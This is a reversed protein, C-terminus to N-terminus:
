WKKIPCHETAMHLKVSACGCKGCRTVGFYPFNTFHPCRPHTEDGSCTLYRERFVEYPVIKFGSKSWRLLSLGFEKAMGMLSLKAESPKDPIEVCASPTSRCYQQDYWFDWDWPIVLGQKVRYAHALDKVRGYYPHEIM